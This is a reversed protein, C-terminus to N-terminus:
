GSTEEDAFRRKERAKRQSLLWAIVDSYTSRDPFKRLMGLERHVENKVRVLREDKGLVM